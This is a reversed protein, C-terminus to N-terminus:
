ASPPHKDCEQQDKIPRKVALNTRHASMLDADGHFACRSFTILSFQLFVASRIVSVPLPPCKFLNKKIFRISQSTDLQEM